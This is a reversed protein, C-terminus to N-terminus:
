IGIFSYKTASSTSIQYGDAMVIDPDYVGVPMRTSHWGWRQEVHIYYDIGVVDPINDCYWDATNPNPLKLPVGMTDYQNLYEETWIGISYTGAGRIGSENVPVVMYYLRSGPDHASAGIHTAFNTGFDIDPCARFYDVGKLGFFGDRANSYYVQYWGGGGKTSPEQWSLTVDGNIEIVINLNKAETAYDFGSFGSDDDYLIMAAPMGCFTYRNDPGSFRVEFGEGMKMQTNNIGGSGLDHRRWTHTSTDMYKIYEANMDSTVDDPFIPQLPELPISFASVGQDFTRTWKGVTRSTHSVMGEENVARVTYYWEKNYNPMGIESADTDNLTTRLPIIGNDSDTDTRKWPVSFDFDIQNETRYIHYHSIKPSSSPIWSLLINDGRGDPNGADDVAEISLKPPLPDPLRVLIHTKPFLNSKSSNDWRTYNILSMLYDNSDVFGMESSTIKFSTRWTEGIRLRTVNWELITRGNGDIYINNPPISFSGPVYSIYPPLVDCVMPNEDTIDPDEGALDVTPVIMMIGNLIIETLDDFYGYERYYGSGNEATRKLWYEAQPLVYYGPPSGWFHPVGITNTHIDRQEYAWKAVNTLHINDHTDYDTILIMIKTVNEDTRWSLNVATELAIDADEQGDGGGLAELLNLAAKFADMDFTLDQDIDIEPVDRFSVLGLRLSTINEALRDVLENVSSKLEDIIDGMSGTDDIVFVIDAANNRQGPIALADGTIELTISAQEGYGTGEVYISSPAISKSPELHPYVKVYLFALDGIFEDADSHIHITVLDEDPIPFDEPIFVWVSINLASAGNVWIDVTGDGDSDSLLTTGQANYIEISWGAFSTGNIEILDGSVQINRITLNFRVYEGPFEWKTQDPFALIHPITPPQNFVWGASIASPDDYGMVGFPKGNLAVGFGDPYRSMSTDPVHPTSWGVEDVFLGSNVYLYVNDGNVDVTGFLGPIMGADIVYFPNDYNLITSFAGSPITFVSDGVVLIWGNVDVDPDNEDGVYTVEIFGDSPSVPNFFVENLIVYKIVVEGPGDNQSGITSTPDRAWTDDYKSANWYRSVCEGPIPDPVTGKQGYGIRDTVLNVSSSTNVISITDGQDDLEDLGAPIQYYGYGGPPIIGASWSGSTLWSTGWDLTIGYDSIDASLTGSNYIEIYEDGGSDVIETIILWPRAIMAWVLVDDLYWGPWQNNEFKNGGINEFLRWGFRVYPQGALFSMDLEEREWGSSVGVYDTVPGQIGPIPIPDTDYTYVIYGFDGSPNDQIQWWHTFALKIESYGRLDFASPAPTFLYSDTDEIYTSDLDTGWCNTPSPLTAPGVLGLHVGYEWETPPSNGSTEFATWLGSASDGGTEMDDMWVMDKISITRSSRNNIMKQDDDLLTTVTFTYDGSVTPVFTWQLNTVEGPGLDSISQKPSEITSPPNLMMASIVGEVDFSVSWDGYNEISVDIVVTNDVQGLSPMSMSSVGVDPFPTKTVLEATDFQSNNFSTAYFTTFDSVDWENVGLPITINVIIDVSEEPYLFVDPIGVQGGNDKLPLHTTANLVVTTWGETDFFHIDIYDPVVNFNTVTLNYSITDGALGIKTEDPGILPADRWEVEIAVDDIYWGRTFMDGMFGCFRFALRIPQGIYASLDFVANEWNTISGNYGQNAGLISNVVGPYGGNPRILDGTMGGKSNVEVWGGDSSAFSYTHWFSLQASVIAESSLNILPTILLYETPSLYAGSLETGWCSTPSNASPPPAPTGLEWQSQSTQPPMFTNIVDVTSWEGLDAPGGTEMDDFFLDKVILGSANQMAEHGLFPLLIVSGGFILTFVLQISIIKNKFRHKSSGGLKRASTHVGKDNSFTNKVHSKYAWL